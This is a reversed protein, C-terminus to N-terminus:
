RVSPLAEAGADLSTKATSGTGTTSRGPVKIHICLPGSGMLATGAHEKM